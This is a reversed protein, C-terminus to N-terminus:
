FALLFIGSIVKRIRIDSEGPESMQFRCLREQVGM